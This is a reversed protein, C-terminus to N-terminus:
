SFSSSGAMMDTRSFLNYHMNTHEKILFWLYQPAKVGKLSRGLSIHHVIIKWECLCHRVGLMHFWVCRGRSASSHLMELMGTSEHAGIWRRMMERLRPPQTHTLSVVAEWVWWLLPLWGSVCRLAKTGNWYVEQVPWMLVFSVTPLSLFGPPPTETKRFNTHKPTASHTWGETQTQTHRRAATYGAVINVTGTWVCVDNSKLSTIILCFVCVYVSSFM